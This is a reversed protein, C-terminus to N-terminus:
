NNDNGQLSQRLESITPPISNRRQNYYVSGETLASWRMVSNLAFYRWTNHKAFRGDVYRFLHHFYEQPYVKRIRPELFDSSGHPYLAPFCQAIYGVSTFEHIPSDSTQPWRLPPDKDNVLGKLSEALMSQESVFVTKLVHSEFRDETPDSAPIDDELTISPIMDSIFGDEPMLGILSTDIVIDKYYINHSKLWLLAKAIRNRRVKFDFHGDSFDKRVIVVGLQTPHRPLTNVFQQVDQNFSIVHGGYSIQGGKLKYVKIIPSCKAILMEEIPTLGKLEPPQPGPDMANRASFKRPDGKDFRCKNCMNNRLAIDPHKENCYSCAHIEINMMTEEFKKVAINFAQEARSKQRNLRDLERIREREDESQRQRYSQKKRRERNRDAIEQLTEDESDSEM